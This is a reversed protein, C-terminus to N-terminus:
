INKHEGCLVSNTFKLLGTKDVYIKSKKVANYFEDSPPNLYIGM